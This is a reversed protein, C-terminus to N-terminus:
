AQLSGRILILDFRFEARILERVRFQCVLVAQGLAADVLVGFRTAPDSIKLVFDLPSHTIPQYSVQYSLLSPITGLITGVALDHPCRRGSPNFHYALM